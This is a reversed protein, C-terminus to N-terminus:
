MMLIWVLITVQNHYQVQIDPPLICQRTLWKGILEPLVGYKYFENVKEVTQDFFKVSPYVHEIHIGVQTWVVFDPYKAQCVTGHLWLNLSVRTYVRALQLQTYM